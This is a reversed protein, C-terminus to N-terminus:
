AHNKKLSKTYGSILFTQCMVASCLAFKFITVWNINSSQSHPGTFVQRKGKPCFGLYIQQFVCILRLNVPGCRARRGTVFWWTDWHIGTFTFFSARPLFDWVVGENLLGDMFQSPMSVDWQFRITKKDENQFQQCTKHLKLARWHPADRWQPRRKVMHFPSRM